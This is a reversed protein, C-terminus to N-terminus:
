PINELTEIFFVEKQL